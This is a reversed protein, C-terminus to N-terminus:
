SSRSGAYAFGAFVAEANTGGFRILALWMRGNEHEQSDGLILRNLGIPFHELDGRMAPTSVYGRAHVRSAAETSSQVPTQWADTLRRQKAAYAADRTADSEDEDADPYVKGQTWNARSRERELPDGSNAVQGGGAEQVGVQAASYNIYINDRWAV